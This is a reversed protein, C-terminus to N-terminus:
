GPGTTRRGASQGYPIGGAHRCSVGSEQSVRSRRREYYRGLQGACFCALMPAALRVFYYDVCRWAIVAALLVGVAVSGREATIHMPGIATLKRVGSVLCGIGAGLLSAACSIAVVWFMSTWFPMLEM